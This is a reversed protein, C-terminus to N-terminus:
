RPGCLSDALLRAAAKARRRFPYGDIHAWNFMLVYFTGLVLETQAQLSHDDAVDGESRGQKVLREFADYMAKQREGETGPDYAAHIIETVLERHNPGAAEANDVIRDFFNLLRERTTSSADHVEQIDSFLTEISQAAIERFLDQKSPFHNFFTKHAVDARERIQAITTNSVGQEDFLQVAAEIIRNRVELKRRERRQTPITAAGFAMPTIM